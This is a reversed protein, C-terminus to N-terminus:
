LVPVYVAIRSKIIAVPPCTHHVNTNWWSFGSQLKSHGVLVVFPQMRNGMALQGEQTPCRIPQPFFDSQTGISLRNSELWMSVM